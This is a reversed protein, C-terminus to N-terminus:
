LWCAYFATYNLIQLASSVGGGMPNSIVEQM